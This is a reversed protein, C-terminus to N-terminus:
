DHDGRDLVALVAANVPEVATQRNTVAALAERGDARVLLSAAGGPGEGALGVLGLQQNVIWGLGAGVGTATMAHPRLAQAALSRPLLSRWGLGLRVLDAATAWLGGAAPFVCVTGDVRTFAGGPSVDYGAVAPGGAGNVLAAAPAAATGDAGDGSAAAAGPGPWRGPFWSRSLGLPALVLRAAAEPYGVGTCAEIVAGLVGYGAYSPSCSGRRGECAVVPGTVSDLAPVAPAHLVPPDTVGATHALLERVTVADDAVKVPGLYRNVREDLRLRGAAVLRLVAVATVAMTVHYVPFQHGATLPESRELDAWGAATTWPDGAGPGPTTESGPTTGAAPTTEPAPRVSAPARAGALVLGAMGFQGRAAEALEAIGAPVRGAPAGLDGPPPAARPDSVGAGLLRARASIVRYPPRTETTVAFLHGGLQGQVTFPTQRMFTPEARLAPALASITAILRAPPVSALFSDAFNERLEQEGPAHWGPQDAPGFRETIWRLRALAHAARGSAADQEAIARRLAAWSPQGNERAVALQADHLTAFEGAAHRRKAAVRLYRLSAHDPLAREDSM